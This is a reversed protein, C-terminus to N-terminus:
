DKLFWEQRLFFHIKIRLTIWLIKLFNVVPNWKIGPPKELALVEYGAGSRGGRAVMQVWFDENGVEYLLVVRQILPLNVGHSLVTTAVIFDCTGVLALRRSFEAAEGGLCTLVSRGKKRLLEAVATVEQRYACFVLTCGASKREEELFSLLLKKGPFRLYSKPAFRLRQNGCDVWLKRDFHGMLEIDRRMWEPLTATLFIVLEATLSVEYFTEWLRQRFTNGWYYTLHAEDFIVVPKAVPSASWEEPTRVDITGEWKTLCENVLARLPALVLLDEPDFNISFDKIWFTKGSAPPSTLILLTTRM